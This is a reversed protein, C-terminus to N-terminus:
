IVGKPSLHCICDKSVDLIAFCYILEVKRDTDKLRESSELPELFPFILPPIQGRLLDFFLKLTSFSTCYITLHKLHPSIIRGQDIM